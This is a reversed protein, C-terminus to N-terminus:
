AERPSRLFVESPDVRTIRILAGHNYVIDNIIKLNGTSDKELKDLAVKLRTSKRFFVIFLIFLILVLISLIVIVTLKIM